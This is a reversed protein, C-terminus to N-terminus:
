RSCTKNKKREYEIIKGCVCCVNPNKYYQEKHYKNTNKRVTTSKHYKKLTQSIKKNVEERKLRSSYKRACRQTCFESLSYKSWVKYFKEGCLKCTKEKKEYEEKEALTYNTKSM